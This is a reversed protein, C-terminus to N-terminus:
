PPGEDELHGRRRPAGEGRSAGGGAPPGAERPLRRGPTGAGLRGRRGAGSRLSQSTEALKGPQGRNGQGDSGYSHTSLRSPPGCEAQRSFGGRLAGSGRPGAHQAPALGARRPARVPTARRRHGTRPGQGGGPIPSVVPRPRSIDGRRPASCGRAAPETLGRGRHPRHGAGNMRAGGAGWPGQGPPNAGGQTDVSAQWGQSRWDPQPAM